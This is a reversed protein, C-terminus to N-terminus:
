LIPRAFKNPMITHEEKKDPITHKVRQVAQNIDKTLMLKGHKYQRTAETLDHTYYAKFECSEGGLVTRAKERAERETEGGPLLYDKGGVGLVVIYWFPEKFRGM